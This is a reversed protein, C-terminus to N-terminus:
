YRETSTIGPDADAAAVPIIKPASVTGTGDNWLDGVSKGRKILEVYDLPKKNINSAIRIPLDLSKLGSVLNADFLNENSAWNPNKYVVPMDSNNFFPSGNAPNQVVSGMDHKLQVYSGSADKIFVNEGWKTYSNGNRAVDTLVEGVSTVKSSFYLGDQAMLFLNGNSHVRGGFDFRPGPHFELDDEYFIGFQFIPIRNNYFRRRLAVQVGTAIDTATTNLEWADRSANLGQFKGGTIVVQKTAQTKEVTQDFKYATFKDPYQGQIRTLDLSEPNLKIDFIKDFNRTMVELSAQAAEFARSEAEDNSSAITESTTRTIALAVFGLLLIMIFLAIIIASGKESETEKIKDNSARVTKGFKKKSLNKMIIIAQIEARM